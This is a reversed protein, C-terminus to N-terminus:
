RLAWGGSVPFVQGVFCAAADSCLYAAFLADEEASVLRGLPVERKLRDQFRPNAQVEPGYYTPNAVFNQAIANLQVGQPALELGVAQVFALQAGRAASYSGTRKQGRLAAASGMLLIRGQGRAVMQPLVAAVLRPMPDVLHAFVKRWEADGIEGAPTGPAPLALHLLLVDVRGAEAVLAAPLAPDDALPRTDAMVEAGLRTFVEVLAPGMFDDAQTLLVRKGDLRTSTM